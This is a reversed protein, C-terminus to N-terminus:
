NGAIYNQTKLAAKFEDSAIYESLRAHFTDITADATGVPVSVTLDGSLKEPRPVSSGDVLGFVLKLGNKMTTQVGEAVRRTQILVRPESATHTASLTFTRKNGEDSFTKLATTFAAM